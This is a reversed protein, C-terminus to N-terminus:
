SSQWESLEFEFCAVAETVYAADDADKVKALDARLDLAIAKASPRGTTTTRLAEQYSRHLAYGKTARVYKPPKGKGARTSNSLYTPLSRHPSLQLDRRLDALETAVVSRRGLVALLYFALLYTQMAVQM